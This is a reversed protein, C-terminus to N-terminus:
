VSMPTPTGRLCSGGGPDQGPSPLDGRGARRRSHRRAGQPVGSVPSPTDGADRARMPTMLARHGEENLPDLDVLERGIDASRAHDGSREHMGILGTLVAIYHDCCGSGTLRRGIRMATRRSHTAGWLTRANRLLDGRPEGQEALAIEASAMFEEADVADGDRLALRYSREASEIVSHEAGPLDLVKRVRSVSVQLSRRASSTSLEPWLAEFALDESVPQGAHVALFRVLRGDIPRAWSAEPIERASRTVRFRGLLGFRLPPAARQLRDRAATAASAVERDSDEVLSPLELLVAPHDAALAAALAARRVAPHSHGTFELLAEGEPDATVLAPLVEDPAIEEGELADSLIPKLQMWHARAIQHGCDGAEEWSRRLTGYADDRRGTEYELWARTALLRARHYSGLEGPFHDDLAEM